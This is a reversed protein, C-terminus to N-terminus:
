EPTCSSGTNIRLFIVYESTRQEMYVVVKEGKIGLEPLEGRTKWLIHTLVYQM